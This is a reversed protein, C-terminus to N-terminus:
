CREESCIAATANKVNHLETKRMFGWYLQQVRMKGLKQFAKCPKHSQDIIRHLLTCQLSRFVLPGGVIELAELRRQVVAQPRCHFLCAKYGEQLYQYERIKGVYYSMLLMIIIQRYVHLVSLQQQQIELGGVFENRTQQNILSIMGGEGLVMKVRKKRYDLDVALQDESSSSPSSDKIEEEDEDKNLVSLDLKPIKVKNKGVEVEGIKGGKNKMGKAKITNANEEPSRNLVAVANEGKLWSALTAERTKSRKLERGVAQMDEKLKKNEETVKRLQEKFTKKHLMNEAKVGSLEHLLKQHREKIAEIEDSLKKNTKKVGALEMKEKASTDLDDYHKKIMKLIDGYLPDNEIVENFINGILVKKIDGGRSVNSDIEELRRKIGESIKKANEFTKMIGISQNPKNCDNQTQSATGGGGTEKLFSLNTSPTITVNHFYSNSANIFCRQNEEYNVLLQIGNLQVMSM